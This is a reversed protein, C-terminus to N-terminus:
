FPGRSCNRNTHGAPLICPIFFVCCLNVTIDAPLFVPLCHYWSSSLCASLSILQFFSLCDTIDAPLFVPLCHYWSSSLCASLSILQFFTLCVTIDALLFVPLCHYWSSSLLLASHFRVASLSDRRLTITILQITFCPSYQSWSSPLCPAPESLPSLGGATVLLM